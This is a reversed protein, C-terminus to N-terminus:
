RGTWGFQRHAQDAVSNAQLENVWTTTYQMIEDMKTVAVGQMSMFKRFEDRSTVATLPLTFERVGDKPLHLRMVVAEGIEVDRLRRVVYLDNHYILRKM